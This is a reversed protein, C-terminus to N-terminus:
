VNHVALEEDTFMIRDIKVRMRKQNPNTLKVDVYAEWVGKESTTKAVIEGTDKNTIIVHFIGRELIKGSIKHKKTGDHIIDTSNATHVYHIYETLYKRTKYKTINKYYKSFPQTM